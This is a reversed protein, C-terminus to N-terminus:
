TSNATVLVFGRQELPSVSGAFTCAPLGSPSAMLIHGDACVTEDLPVGARVQLLPTPISKTDAKFGAAQQSSLIVSMDPMPNSTRIHDRVLLTQDDGVVVAHGAGGYQSGGSIWALGESVAKIKVSMTDTQNQTLLAFAESYSYSYAIGGYATTEIKEEDM